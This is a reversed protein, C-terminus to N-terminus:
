RVFRAWTRRITDTPQAEELTLFAGEEQEPVVNAEDKLNAAPEDDHLPLAPIVPAAQSVRSVKSVKEILPELKAIIENGCAFDSGGIKSQELQKVLPSEFSSKLDANLEAM